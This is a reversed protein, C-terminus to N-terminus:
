YRLSGDHDLINASMVANLASIEKILAMGEDTQIEYILDLRNRNINRSKVKYYIKHKELLTNLENEYEVSEGNVVLLRPAEKLNVRDLAFIAITVIIATLIALGYIETGTVIGTTIAWFVFALDMPDKLATRFRVISLAGVMGLSVVLNAQMAVVIATTLITIVSLTINFSKSYFSDKSITRYVVYIYLSLLTSFILAFIMRRYSMGATRTLLDIAESVM